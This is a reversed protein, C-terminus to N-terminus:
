HSLLQAGPPSGPVRFEAQGDGQLELPLPEDKAQRAAGVALHVPGEQARKCGCEFSTSLM